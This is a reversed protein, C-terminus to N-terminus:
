LDMKMCILSMKIQITECSFENQFLPMPYSPFMCNTDEFVKDHTKDKCLVSKEM